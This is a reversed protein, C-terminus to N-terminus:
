AAASQTLLANFAEVPMPRGYLYGQAVTCGCKALADGQAPTEVGEAIVDIGLMSGLFAMATVVAADATDDVIDRIFSRDIKIRSIPYSKLVSLSAYGTGFDDLAVGAGQDRLARLPALMTEDERLIINETVELELATPPLGHRDLAARVREAIGGDRFQAGFLNIGMVLHPARARWVAAQACATELVWQGVDHALGGSELAPLFAGPSLLGREPHQWRLLAEAGLLARDPLRVQPQYHLRFQGQALADRLEGEFARRHIAASRLEPTYFRHCHRGESKAQYMALDAASLLDEADVGDGPFLALGVSASVHVEQTELPVAAAVAAALREAIDVAHERPEEGTLLIAFEDGGLRAVTDLPRVCDLLRAAITRLVADGSSHGLTDNVDKFGDLDLMLLAFPTAREVLAATRTLLAARNPLETLHDLHAMRFLRDETARRESLDRMIAGFAAHPGEFWMSLSLEIPFERGDHHMATLEVKRGVLRPAGGNAVRLLGGDHGGRMRPPVIIDIGYGEVQDAPFGFMAEAGANWFRIRGHHDACVIADPSTAAINRFRSQGIRRALDLRRVELRDMVIDALARLNEADAATFRSRPRTDIVCLTGIPHGEPTRLPAGAYFRIGPPAIVLPNDAFRADMTADLVVFVEEEALAHACFSVARSTGDLDTGVAARFFQEDAAVFSVTAIASDFIRSALRTLEGLGLDVAPDLAQYQALAELREDENPLLPPLRM